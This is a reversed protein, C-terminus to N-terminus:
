EQIRASELLSRDLTASRRYVDKLSALSMPRSAPGARSSMVPSAGLTGSDARIRGITDEDQKIEEEKFGVTKTYADRSDSGIGVGSSSATMRSRRRNEELWSNLKGLSPPLAAISEPTACSGSDSASSLPRIKVLVQNKPPFEISVDSVSSHHSIRQAGPFVSAPTQPPGSLRSGLNEYEFLSLSPMEERSKIPQHGDRSVPHSGLPNTLNDITSISRTLFAPQSRLPDTLNDTSLISHNLFASHNLLSARSVSQLTRTPAMGMIGEIDAHSMNAPKLTASDDGSSAVRGRGIKRKRWLCFSLAAIVILLWAVIGVAIGIITQQKLVPAPTVSTLGEAGDAAKAASASTSSLDTATATSLALISTAGSLSPGSAGTASNYLTSIPASASNLLTSVPSLSQLGPIYSPGGPLATASAAGVSLFSTSAPVNFGDRSSSGGVLPPIPDNTPVPNMSMSMSLLTQLSQSEQAVPTDTQLPPSFTQPTDPNGSGSGAGFGGSGFGNGPFGPQYIPQFPNM